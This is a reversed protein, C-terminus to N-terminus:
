TFKVEIQLFHMLEGQSVEPGTNLGPHEGPTRFNFPVDGVAKGARSLGEQALGLGGHCRCGNCPCDSATWVGDGRDLAGAKMAGAAVHLQRGRSEASDRGPVQGASSPRIGLRVGGAGSM